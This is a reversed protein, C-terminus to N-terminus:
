KFLLQALEKLSRRWTLLVTLITMRKQKMM